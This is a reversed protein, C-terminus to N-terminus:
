ENTFPFLLKQNMDMYMNEKTILISGSDVVSPVAEKRVLKIANEVALYGMNFPKQIVIAEFVGSELYQIEELANDFGVIKVKNELGLEVVARGAGVAAYQNLGAIVTIQPNEKLMKKTLEEGKDYDSNCYVTDVIRNGVGSLVTRLGDERQIATSSEKVYSVVGIKSKPGIMTQIVAGMKIGAQFNETSIASDAINEKLISDVLVLKINNEKIKRAADYTKIYDAAALVIADPKEKIAELIIANQATYDTEDEVGVISFDVGYEEAALEAGERIDNWFDFTADLNKTIYIVKEPRKETEKYGYFIIGVLLLLGIGMFTYRIIVKGKIMM